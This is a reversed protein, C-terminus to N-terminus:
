DPLRPRKKLSGALMARLSIMDHIWVGDRFEGGRIPVEKAGEYYYALLPVPSLVVAEECPKDKPDNRKEMVPMVRYGKPVQWTQDYLMPLGKSSTGWMLVRALAHPRNAVLLRYGRLSLVTYISPSLFKLIRRRRVTAIFRIKYMCKPTDVTIAPCASRRLLSTYCARNVRVSYGREEAEKVIERVARRRIRLARILRLTYPVYVIALILAIVQVAFWRFLFLSLVLLGATVVASAAAKIRHRVYARHFDDSMDPRSHVDSLLGALERPDGLADVAALFAEEETAGSMMRSLMGDEIHEAYERRVEARVRRSAIGGTVADLFEDIRRQRYFEAM